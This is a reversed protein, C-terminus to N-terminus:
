WETQFKEEVCFLLCPQHYTVLVVRGIRCARKMEKILLMVDWKSKLIMAIVELEDEWANLPPHIGVQLYEKENITLVLIFTSKWKNHSNRDVYWPPDQRAVIAKYRVHTALMYIKSILFVSYLHHIKEQFLSLVMVETTIHLNRGM